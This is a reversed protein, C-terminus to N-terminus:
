PGGFTRVGCAREVAADAAQLRRTQGDTYSNGDLAARLFGIQSTLAQLPDALDPEPIVARLAAQSQELGPRAQQPSTRGTAIEGVLRHVTALPEAAARCTGPRLAATDLPPPPPPAARTAPGRLVLAAAVGGALLVLVATALLVRLRRAPVTV